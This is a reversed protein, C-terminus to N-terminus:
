EQSPDKGAMELLKMADYFNRPDLGTKEKIKDLQYTLCSHSAYYLEKASPLMKLDNRCMAWVICRERTSLRDHEIQEVLERRKEADSM